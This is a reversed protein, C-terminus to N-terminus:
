NDHGADNKGGIRPDNAEDGVIRGDKITIIRKTQGAIYPEHTILVVTKGAENLVSLLAMIEGGAATDLAGTPEDALILEPDNVLARAIAVRQQQGGSLQNPWHGARDALEVAALAAVGKVRQHARGAYALPLLVNELASTRALLNFQQFVFGIKRSRVEALDDGALSQVDLGDLLYTGSTQKDLCGLIQMLTSKGSGSPGVISVFEGTEINLSAGRLAQVVVESSLRYTKELDTARILM